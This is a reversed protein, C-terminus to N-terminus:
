KLKTVAKIVSLQARIRTVRDDIENSLSLAGEPQLESAAIVALTQNLSITEAQESAGYWREDGPGCSLNVKLLVAFSEQNQEKLHNVAKIADRMVSSAELPDFQSYVGAAALLVGAQLKPDAPDRVLSRSRHLLEIAKSKDSKKLARVAIKMYLIARQDKATVKEVLESALNLDDAEVARYAKDYNLFQKVEDRLSASNIKDAIQAVRDFEKAHVLAFVVQAYARDRRSALLLVKQIAEKTRKEKQPLALASDLAAIFFEGSRAKDINWYIDAIEAMVSPREQEPDLNRAQVALDDLLAQWEGLERPAQARAVSTTAKSNNRDKETQTSGVSLQLPTVSTALLIAVLGNTYFQKM